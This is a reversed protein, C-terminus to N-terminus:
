MADNSSMVFCDPAMNSEPRWTLGVSFRLKELVFSQFFVISHVRPWV